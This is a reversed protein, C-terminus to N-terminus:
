LYISTYIYIHIIYLLIHMYLHARIIAVANPSCIYIYIYVTHLYIYIYIVCFLITTAFHSLLLTSPQLVKHRTMTTDHLPQLIAYQSSQARHLYIYIYLIQFPNVSLYIYREREQVFATKDVKTHHHSEFIHSRELDYSM